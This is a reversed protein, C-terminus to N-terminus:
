KLIKEIVAVNYPMNWNTLQYVCHINGEVDSIRHLTMLQSYQLHM